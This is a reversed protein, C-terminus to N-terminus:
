LLRQPRVGGTTPWSVELLSFHCGPYYSRMPSAQIHPWASVWWKTLHSLWVFVVLQNWTRSLPSSGPGWVNFEIIDVTHRPPLFLIGSAPQLLVWDARCNYRWHISLSSDPFLSPHTDPHVPEQLDSRMQYVAFVPKQLRARYPQRDPSSGIKLLFISYELDWLPQGM